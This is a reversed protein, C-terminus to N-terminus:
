PRHGPAAPTASTATNTLDTARWCCRVGNQHSQPAGERQKQVKRLEPGTLRSAETLQTTPTVWLPTNSGVGQRYPQSAPAKGSISASGRHTLRRGYDHTSPTEEHDTFAECIAVSKTKRSQDLRTQYHFGVVM